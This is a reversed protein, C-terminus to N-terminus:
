MAFCFLVCIVRVIFQGKSIECCLGNESYLDGKEINWVIFAIHFTVSNLHNERIARSRIHGRSLHLVM